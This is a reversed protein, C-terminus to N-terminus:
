KLLHPFQLILFGILKRFMIQCLLFFSLLRDSSLPIIFTETGNIYQRKGGFLLKTHKIVFIENIIFLIILCISRRRFVADLQIIITFSTDYGGLISWGCYYQCVRLYIQFIIALGNIFFQLVNRLSNLFGDIIVFRYYNRDFSTFWLRKNWWWNSHTM